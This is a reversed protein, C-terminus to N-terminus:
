PTGTTLKVWLCSSVCPHISLTIAISARVSFAWAMLLYQATLLNMTNSWNWVSIITLSSFVLFHHLMKFFFIGATEPNVWQPRTLVNPSMSRPWCQSLYHRTAQHCWAMVQVLTSKDDTLDQPMWRLAIKYSIGWGGNVLILKFIVERINFQLRGPALSNFHSIHQAKTMVAKYLIHHM